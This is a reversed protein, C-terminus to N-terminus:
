GNTEGKMDAGCHPCFNSLCACYDSYERYSLDMNYAYLVSCGCVSCKYSTGTSNEIWKGHKVEVVDASDAWNLEQEVADHWERSIDGLTFKDDIYQILKDANIHKSMTKEGDTLVISIMM